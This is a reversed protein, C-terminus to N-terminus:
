GFTFTFEQGGITGTGTGRSGTSVFSFSGSTGDKCVFTGEGKRGTTYVFTGDCDRGRSSTIHLNGGGDAYGTAKGQFTEQGNVAQGTVPLTMSCGALLLLFPALAPVYKM